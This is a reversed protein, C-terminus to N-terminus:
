REKDVNIGSGPIITDRSLTHYNGSVAARQMYKADKWRNARTRAQTIAPGICFMLSIKVAGLYSLTPFSQIWEQHILDV